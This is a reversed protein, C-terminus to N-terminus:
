MKEGDAYLKHKISGKTILVGACLAPEVPQGRSGLFRWRLLTRRLMTSRATDCPNIGAVFRVPILAYRPRYGRLAEAIRHDNRVAILLFRGSTTRM